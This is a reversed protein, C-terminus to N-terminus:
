LLPLKTNSRRSKVPSETTHGLDEQDRFFNTVSILLDQLLAMAESPPLRLFALYAPLQEITNVQMRNPMEAVPLVWDVMGTAIASRPMGDHEAEGPAQAVTLGGNEKIRKIGIAGDGGSGSLVIAASCPGHTDALTRFLIDVASRTGNDHRLDNLVLQGDTMLLNKGPPIVYVCNAEVKVAESVQIVRMPTVNQLLAALSSEHEPSLHLVVVFAMGSNEPMRSFFAQLASTSGASGGLGVVAHM